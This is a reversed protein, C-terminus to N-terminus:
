ARSLMERVKEGKSRMDEVVNEARLLFDQGKRLYKPANEWIEKAREPNEAAAFGLAALGAALAAKHRGTFLLVAGAMLSGAAAIRPWPLDKVIEPTYSSIQAPIKKFDTEM